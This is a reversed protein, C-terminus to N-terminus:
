IKYTKLIIMKFIKNMKHNIIKIKKINYNYNKIKLNFIRMLGKLFINIQSYIILKVNKKNIIKLYISFIILNLIIKIRNQHKM